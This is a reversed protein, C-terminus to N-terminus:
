IRKDIGANKTAAATWLAADIPQGSKQRDRVWWFLAQINKIHIGGLIVRGNNAVRRAMRSLMATVDDDGGDLFGFDAILTLSENNIILNRTADVSVGCTTLVMQLDAIPDAM